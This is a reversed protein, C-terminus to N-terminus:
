RKGIWKSWEAPTRYTGGAQLKGLRRGGIPTGGM